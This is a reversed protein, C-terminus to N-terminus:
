QNKRQRHQDANPCTAFHSTYGYYKSVDGQEEAKYAHITGGFPTVLTLRKSGNPEIQYRIPKADCPMMKGSAVKIWIIEAGCSRCKCSVKISGM